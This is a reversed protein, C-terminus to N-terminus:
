LTPTSIQSGPLPGTAMSRDVMWERVLDVLKETLTSVDINQATVGRDVFVVLDHKGRHVVFRDRLAEARGSGNVFFSFHVLIALWVDDLRLGLNLHQEWARLVTSVFGNRSVVITDQEAESISTQVSGRGNM